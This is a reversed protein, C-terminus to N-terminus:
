RRWGRREAEAVLVDPAHRFEERRRAGQVLATLVEAIAENAPAPVGCALAERAVAGNLFTVESEGRGREIDLQLSPKKGGRAGGVMRQMLPRLAGAPAHGLLFAMAPVPYGPLGVPRVGARRMVALAERYAALELAYLADDRYVEEPSLDVIAPVANALINLLLKSWKIARYDGYERCRLGAGRLAEGFTRLGAIAGAADPALALGGRRGRVAYRGVERVSVVQTIVGSVLVDRDLLATAIEDGGVGNQILLVRELGRQLYPRLLLCSSETDYAKTTVIAAELGEMAQVLDEIRESVVVDRITREVGNEVLVLGRSRVRAVYPARGLLGVTHGAEALRGGIYSGIAGAGIIAVRM